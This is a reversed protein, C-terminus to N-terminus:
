KKIYRLVEVLSVPFYLWCDIGVNLYNLEKNYLVKEHIHGCLNLDYGPRIDSPRHCMFFRLGNYEFIAVRPACRLQKVRKDHNGRIISFHGNM